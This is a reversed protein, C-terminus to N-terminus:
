EIKKFCYTNEETKKSTGTRSSGSACITSDLGWGYKEHIKKTIDAIPYKKDTKINKVSWCSTGGPNLKGLCQVIVEELWKEWDEWTSFSDISQEGCTYIELNFYPPSTLVMDFTEDIEAIGKEVPQNIVRALERAEKPISTNELINLLKSYTTFDPEFGVYKKGLCITGLMRGGWGICPDLVSNARYLLCIKKATIARYKTVTSLGLAMSINKRIESRYPTSHRSVTLLLAKEWVLQDINGKISKGAYNKVEYIHDMMMDLIFHGQKSRVNIDGCVDKKVLNDWDRKLETENYHIDFLDNKEIYVQSLQKIYQFLEPEKDETLDKMPIASTSEHHSKNKLLKRISFKEENLISVVQEATLM